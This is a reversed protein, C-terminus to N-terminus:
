THVNEYCANESFFNNYNIAFYTTNSECDNKALLLRKSKLHWHLTRVYMHFYEVSHRCNKM